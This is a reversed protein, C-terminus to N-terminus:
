WQAKIFMVCLSVCITSHRCSCLLVCVCVTTSKSKCVCLLLCITSNKCFCIVVCLVCCFVHVTLSIGYIRDRAVQLVQAEVMPRTEFLTCCKFKQANSYPLKSFDSPQVFYHLQIFRLHDNPMAWSQIKLFLLFFSKCLQRDEKTCFNKGEHCKTGVNRGEILAMMRSNGNETLVITCHAFQFKSGKMHACKQITKVFKQHAWSYKKGHQDMMQTFSFECYIGLGESHHYRAIQLLNNPMSQGM